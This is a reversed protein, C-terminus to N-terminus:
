SIHPRRLSGPPTHPSAEAAFLKQVNQAIKCTYIHVICTYDRVPGTQFATFRYPGVCNVSVSPLRSVVWTQQTSTNFCYFGSQSQTGMHEASAVSMTVGHMTTQLDSYFSFTMDWELNWMSRSARIYQRESESAGNRARQRESESVPRAYCLM